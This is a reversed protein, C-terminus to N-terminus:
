DDDASASSDAFGYSAWGPLVLKTANGLIACADPGAIKDLRLIAVTQGDFVMGLAGVARDNCTVPTGAPVDGCDVTVPRRRATGRHQMRSVVEQGIYCGKAFDIGSLIDMGMDHPFLSDAPYDSGVEVIGNEIRVQAYGNDDAWSAAHEIPAVVRYGLADLRGDKAYIADAVPSTAYGVAHSERLDDIDVKARLRYMRMRKFFSDASEIDVDLWFADDAWSVLGEAQVKGQPSLLSWWAASHTDTEFKATLVDNLLKQADPGSFRFVARNKRLHVSM